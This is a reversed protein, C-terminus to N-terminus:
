MKPLVSKLCFSNDFIADVDVVADDFVEGVPLLFFRFCATGFSLVFGFFCHAVQGVLLVNSSNILSVKTELALVEDFIGILSKM